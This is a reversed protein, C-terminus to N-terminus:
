GNTKELRMSLGLGGFTQAVFVPESPTSLQPTYKYGLNAFEKFRDSDDVQNIILWRAFAGRAIKAHVVVFTPQKTQPNVTMFRPTVVRSQDVFPLVAGTYEVSSTNVIVGSAPLTKAISDGWFKYLNFYNSKPLKYAMELRYPCITDLPRIVGYLGSLIVLHKDAYQRQAETLGSAQLGSYIDGVFTDIAVSQRNPDASWDTILQQTKGALVKSLHMTKAIQTPSMTKLYNALPTAKDILQPPRVSAPPSKPTRM